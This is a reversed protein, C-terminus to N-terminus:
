LNILENSMKIGCVLKQQFSSFAENISYFVNRWIEIWFNFLNFCTEHAESM